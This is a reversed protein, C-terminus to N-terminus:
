WAIAVAMKAFLGSEQIRRFTSAKHNMVADQPTLYLGLAGEQVTPLFFGESTGTTRGAVPIFM